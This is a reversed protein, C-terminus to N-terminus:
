VTGMNIAQRNIQKNTQCVTRVQDALSGGTLFPKQPLFLVYHHSSDPCLKASGGLPKWLGRLVRLISSKGSGPLLISFPKLHTNIVLHKSAQFLLSSAAQFCFPPLSNPLSQRSVFHLSHIQLPSGPFLISPTFESLVAQFCFPPLSNPLSQRSVFHLSHVRFPSGPFLISPTFESPVAQFCFPTSPSSQRSTLHLSTYGEGPGAKDEAKIAAPSAQSRPYKLHTNIFM